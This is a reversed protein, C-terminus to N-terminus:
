KTKGMAKIRKKMDQIVGKGGTGKEGGPLM